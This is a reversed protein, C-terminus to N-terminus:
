FYHNSGGGVVGGMETSILKKAIDKNYSIFSNKYIYSIEEISMEIVIGKKVSNFVNVMIIM